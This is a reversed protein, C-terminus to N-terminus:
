LMHLDFDCEAPGVGQIQKTHPIQKHLHQLSLSNLYLFGITLPSHKSTEKAM